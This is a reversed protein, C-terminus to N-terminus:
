IHFCWVKYIDGCSILFIPAKKCMSPIPVWSPGQEAMGQQKIKEKDIQQGNPPATMDAHAYNCKIVVAVLWVERTIGPKDKRAM